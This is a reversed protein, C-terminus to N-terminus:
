AVRCILTQTRATPRLSGPRFDGGHAEIVFGASEVLGVLEAPFYRRQTLKMVHATRSGQRRFTFNMHAIQTLPDYAHTSRYTWPSSDGPRRFAMPPSGRGHALWALDPVQVDFAFVGGPQLHAKVRAMVACWEAHSYVHEMVNFCALIVAYRSGLDFFRVDDHVLTVQDRVRARTAKQELRALMSASRELAVVHYGDKALALAVRGSGAGLELVPQPAKAKNRPLYSAVLRRYYAVDARRARYWDDYLAADLYHERSGPDEIEPTLSRTM